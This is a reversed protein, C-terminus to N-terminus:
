LNNKCRFPSPVDLQGQFIMQFDLAGPLAAERPHVTVQSAQKAWKYFLLKAKLLLNHSSSWSVSSYRNKCQLSGRPQQSNSKIYTTNRIRKFILLIISQQYLWLIGLFRFCIHLVVGMHMKRVTHNSLFLAQKSPFLICTELILFELLRTSPRSWYMPTKLKSPPIVQDASTESATPKQVKQYM